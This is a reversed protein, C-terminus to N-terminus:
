KTGQLKGSLKKEKLCVASYRKGYFIRAMQRVMGLYQNNLLCIIIPHGRVIATAMEQINM